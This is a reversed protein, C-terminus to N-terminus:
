WIYAVQKRKGIIKSGKRLEKRRQLRLLAMAVRDAECHYSSGLKGHVEKITKPTQFFGQDRLKLIHTPLGNDAASSPNKVSRVKPSAPFVVKELRDLRALIEELPNASM